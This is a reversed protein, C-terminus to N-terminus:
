AAPRFFTEVIYSTLALKKNIDMEGFIREMQQM